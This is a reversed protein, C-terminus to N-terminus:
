VGQWQEREKINLTQNNGGGGLEGAWVVWVKGKGLESGIGGSYIGGGSDGDIGCAGHNM